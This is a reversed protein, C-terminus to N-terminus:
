VKLKEFMHKAGNFNKNFIVGIIVKFYEIPVGRFGFYIVEQYCVEM